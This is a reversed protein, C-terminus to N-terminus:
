DDVIAKRGRTVESKIELQPATMGSAPDHVKMLDNKVASMQLDNRERVSKSQRDFLAKPMEMLINGHIGIVDQGNFDLHMVFQGQPVTSRLRPKWGKNIKKFVNSQDEVGKVHTRIWRQVYGDRAPIKDTSLLADDYDDYNEHVPEAARQEQERSLRTTTMKSGQKKAM